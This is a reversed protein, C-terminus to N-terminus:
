KSRNRIMALIDAARSDGGATAADAVPAETPAPAAVPAVYAEQIVPQANNTQTSTEFPVM